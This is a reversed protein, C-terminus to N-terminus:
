APRGALVQYISTFGTEFGNRAARLYLRWVRLREEGVLAAAESSNADLRAAWERLTRAYDGAFGEVHTTVFGARELALQVRSLPLPRADPFVYRESFPGAEAADPSLLAIGHNLLRGGPRLRAFVGRGYEDIREEGVHEVM